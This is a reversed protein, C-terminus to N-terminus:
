SWSLLFDLKSKLSKKREVTEHNTPKCRTVLLYVACSFSYRFRSCSLRLHWPTYNLFFIKMDELDYRIKAEQCHRSLGASTPRRVGWGVLVYNNRNQTASSASNQKEEINNTMLIRLTGHCRLACTDLLTDAALKHTHVSSAIWQVPAPQGSPLLAFRSRGDM